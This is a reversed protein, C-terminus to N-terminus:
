DSNVGTVQISASDTELDPQYTTEIDNTYISLQKKISRLRNWSMNLSAFSSQESTSAVSIVININQSKPLTQFFLRIVKIHQETLSNQQKNFTISLKRRYIDNSLLMGATSKSLKELSKELHAEKETQKKEYGPLPNNLKMTPTCSALWPILLILSYTLIWPRKILIVERDRTWNLKQQIM